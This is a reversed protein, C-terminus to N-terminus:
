ASASYRPRLTCHCQRVINDVYSLLSPAVIPSVLIALLSIRAFCRRRDLDDELFNSSHGDTSDGHRAAFPRQVCQVIHNVQPSARGVNLCLGVFYDGQDGLEGELIKAGTIEPTACVNGNIHADWVIANRGRLDFDPTSEM